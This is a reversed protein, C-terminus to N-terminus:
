VDLFRSVAVASGIAGALAGVVLIVVGIWLSQSSTVSFEKFLSTTSRRINGQVWRSGGVTVIAALLAGLIGQLMGELMFPLRIFWNTAGVLKMVAVERRRAFIAMRITNLILLVAAALLVVAVVVIGLQVNHLLSLLSKTSKALSNVKYVGALKTFRASLAAIDEPRKPKIRFSPPLDAASRFASLSDPDNHLIQQAEKFAQEHDLFKYSAVQPAAEVQTRVADIDAQPASPNMYVTFEFGGRFSAFANDVSDRLLLASGALTLSIAVTLVATITMLANRWLNQAGERVVYSVKIAM